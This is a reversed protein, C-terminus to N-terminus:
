CWEVAVRVDLDILVREQLHRELEQQLVRSQEHADL